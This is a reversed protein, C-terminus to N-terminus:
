MALCLGVVAALVITAIAWSKMSVGGGVSEPVRSRRRGWWTNLPLLQFAAGRSEAQGPKRGATCYPDRGGRRHVKDIGRKRGNNRAMKQEAAVAPLAGAFGGLMTRM